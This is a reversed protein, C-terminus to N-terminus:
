ELLPTKWTAADRKLLSSCAAKRRQRRVYRYAKPKGAPTIILFLPAEPV